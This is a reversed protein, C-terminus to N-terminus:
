LCLSIADVSLAGHISQSITGTEEKLPTDLIEQIREYSASAQSIIGSMFGIMIIPFILITLYSNFASFDGLSMSGSIVFHGGLMLIILIAMNSSFGIIPMITAFLKLISLGIDKAKQNAEIFKTYQTAQANLIRILASGLISENIIRNLWDITEQSSKFLQRVRTLVFAFSIGIVPVILLISLALVWNIWLLLISSGVILFVSSFISSIAQSVFMKISDVDSTINTLLKSPTVTHIYNYDQLSIREILDMRLNRAVKESTYVQFISQIYTLISISVAVIFFEEV